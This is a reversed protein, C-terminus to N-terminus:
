TPRGDLRDKSDVAAQFSTAPASAPRAKAIREAPRYRGAIGRFHQWGPCRRLSAQQGFFAKQRPEAGAVASIRKPISILQLVIM